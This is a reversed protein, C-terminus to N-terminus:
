SRHFITYGEITKILNGDLWTEQICYVSLNRNNMNQVIADLNIRRLNIRLGQVYQSIFIINENNM